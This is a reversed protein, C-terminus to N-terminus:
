KKRLSIHNDVRDYYQIIKALAESLPMEIQFTTIEKRQLQKQTSVGCRAFLACRCDSIAQIKAAIRSDSPGCGGSGCGGAFAQSDAHCSSGSAPNIDEKVARRIENISYSGDVEVHVIRFSDAKGFHGDVNIGDSSVVAIKYTM